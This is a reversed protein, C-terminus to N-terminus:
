NNQLIPDSSNNTLNNELSPTIIDTTPAAVPVPAKTIKQRKNNQSIQKQKPMAGTPQPQLSEITKDYKSSMRCKQLYTSMPRVYSDFGLNGLANVADEGNVTKRKEQISRDSAESAIFCIFESVCEQLCEKSEKSIKAHQPIVKKMIRAINAIPLFKDLDKIDELNVEQDDYLDSRITPNMNQSESSLFEFIICTYNASSILASGSM